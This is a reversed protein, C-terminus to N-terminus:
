PGDDYIVDPVGAYPAILTGFNASVVTGAEVIVQMEGVAIGDVFIAVTYEGAKLDKVLGPAGEYVIGDAGSVKMVVDNGSYERLFPGEGHDFVWGVVTLPQVFWKAGKGIHFFLYIFDDAPLNYSSVNNHKIDANPNYGAPWA